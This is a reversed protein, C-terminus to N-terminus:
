FLISSAKNLNIHEGSLPCCSSFKLFKGLCTRAGNLAEVGDESSSSGCTAPAARAVVGENLLFSSVAAAGAHCHARWVIVQFLQFVLTVTLLAAPDCPAPRSRSREEAAAAPSTFSGWQFLYVSLSTVAAPQPDIFMWFM